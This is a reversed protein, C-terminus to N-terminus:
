RVAVIDALYVTEGRADGLGARSNFHLVLDDRTVELCSNTTTPDDCFSVAVSTGGFKSGDRCELYTFTKGNLADFIQIPTM